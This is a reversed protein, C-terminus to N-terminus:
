GTAWRRSGRSDRPRRDPSRRGTSTGPASSRSIRSTARGGSPTASSRPKAQRDDRTRPVPRRTRRPAADTPSAPCRRTDRARARAPARRATRCWRRATPSRRSRPRTRRTNPSRAQIGSVTCTTALASPAAAARDAHHPREGVLPGRGERRQQDAHEREVGDVGRRLRGVRDARHQEERRQQATTALPASAAAARANAAAAASSDPMTGCNRGFRIRNGTTITPPWRRAPAVARPAAHEICASDERRTTARQLATSRGCSGASRVSGGSWCARRRAARTRCAAPRGTGRSGRRVIRARDEVRRREVVGAESRSRDDHGRRVHRQRRGVQSTADVRRSSRGRDRAAGLRGLRALPCRGDREFNGACGIASSPRSSSRTSQGAIRRRMCGREVGSPPSALGNTNKTLRRDDQRDRDARRDARHRRGRGGSAGGRTAALREARSACQVEVAVPPDRSRSKVRPSRTRSGSPAATRGARRSASASARPDATTVSASPDLRVTGSREAAPLGIEVDLAVRRRARTASAFTMTSRGVSRRRVRRTCRRRHPRRGVVHEVPALRVM